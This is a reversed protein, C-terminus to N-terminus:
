PGHQHLLFLGLEMTNAIINKLRDEVKDLFANITFIDDDDDDDVLRFPKDSCSIYRMVTGNPLFSM